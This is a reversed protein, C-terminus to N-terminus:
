FVVTEMVGPPSGALDTSSREWLDSTLSSLSQQSQQRSVPPRSRESQHISQCCPHISPHLFFLVSLIFSSLLSCFFCVFHVCLSGPTTTPDSHTSPLPDCLHLYQPLPRLHVVLCGVFALPSFTMRWLTWTLSPAPTQGGCRWTKLSSLASNFQGPVVHFRTAHVPLDWLHVWQGVIIGGPRRDLEMSQSHLGKSYGAEGMMQNARQYRDM